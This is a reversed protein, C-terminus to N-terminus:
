VFAKIEAETLHRLKERYDSLSFNKDITREFKKMERERLGEARRIYLHLKELKRLVEKKDTSLLNLQYELNAREAYFESLIKGFALMRQESFWLPTYRHRIDLREAQILLQKRLEGILKKHGSKKRM